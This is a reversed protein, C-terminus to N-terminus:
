SGVTLKQVLDKGRQKVKKVGSSGSSSRRSKFNEQSQTMRFEKTYKRIHRSRLRVGLSASLITQGDIRSPLKDRLFTLIHEFPLNLLDQECSALIAIFVRYVVKWGEVLFNDWVKSVLDFDFSSSFITMLWQTAFMSINIGENELHQHLDPLLKQVLRDAVFLTELSGAMDTTFLERMCYPDDNMIAVLLWFSEEEPMFTLCTAAIFNMGQCYGIEEDYLAYANLIRRLSEVGDPDLDECIFSSNMLDDEEKQSHFLYHSPFTRRLDKEIQECIQNSNGMAEEVISQYDGDRAGIVLNVASIVSWARARMKDPLGLRMYYKITEQSGEPPEGSPSLACSDLLLGWGDVDLPEVTDCCSDQSKRREISKGSGSIATDDCDQVLFGYRDYCTSGEESRAPLNDGPLNGGAIDQILKEVNMQSLDESEDIGPALGDVGKDKERNVAGSEPEDDESAAEGEEYHEQGEDVSEEEEEEVSDEEEMEIVEEMVEYIVGHDPEGYRGSCQLSTEAYCYYVNPRDFFAKDGGQICKIESHTLLMQGLCIAESRSAALGSKIMEDTAKEGSFTYHQLKFSDHGPKVVEKFRLSLDEISLSVRRAINQSNNRHAQPVFKYTYRKDKFSHKQSVHEFLGFKDMLISGVRVADQRTKAMNSNVLFTVADRGTFSNKNVEIGEEFAEAIYKMSFAVGGHGSPYILRQDHPIFKYLYNTDELDYDNTIHTFLAFEYALTRGLNLANERTNAYGNDLLFSVADQGSFVYETAKGRLTYNKRAKVRVGSEFKDRIRGMEYVDPFLFIASEDDNDATANDTTDEEALAETNAWNLNKAMSEEFLNTAMSVDFGDGESPGSLDFKAASSLRNRRSSFKRMKKKKHRKQDM